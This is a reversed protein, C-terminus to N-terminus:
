KSTDEASALLKSIRTLLEHYTSVFAIRREDPDNYAAPDPLGWHLIRPAGRWVPCSEAAANDCVTVVTDLKVAGEGSFENWSKSRLGGVSHGNAQLVELAGPNVKGVPKSGASFGQFRGAGLDNLLVEALISRASNGTCLFLVKHVAASM